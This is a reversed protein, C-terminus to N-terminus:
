EWTYKDNKRILKQARAMHENMDSITYLNEEADCIYWNAERLIEYLEKRYAQRMYWPMDIWQKIEFNLIRNKLKTAQECAQELMEKTEKDM